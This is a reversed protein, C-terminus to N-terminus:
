ENKAAGREMSKFVKRLQMRATNLRSKVTGVPINLMDAMEAYSCGQIERLLMIERQDEPLQQLAEEISLRMQKTELEDPPHPETRWKNIIQEMGKREKMKKRIRDYCLRHAIRILWSRISEEKELQKLAYYAKIFTEQVTDEADSRSGLMGYAYRFVDGSYHKMLAAFAAADGTKAKRILLLWEHEM